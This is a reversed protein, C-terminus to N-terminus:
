RHENASETLKDGAKEIGQSVHESAKKIDQGFGAVTNCGALAISGCILAAALVLKNM